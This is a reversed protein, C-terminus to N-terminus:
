NKKIQRSSICLTLVETHTALLLKWIRILVTVSCLKELQYVTTFIITITKYDLQAM